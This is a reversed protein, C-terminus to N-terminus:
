RSFGQGSKVDNSHAKERAISEIANAWNIIIGKNQAIYSDM